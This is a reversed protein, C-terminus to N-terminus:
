INAIYLYGGLCGRGCLIGRELLMHAVATQVPYRDSNFRKCLEQVNTTRNSSFYSILEEDTYQSFESRIKVLIGQTYVPKLREIVKPKTFTFTRSSNQKVVNVAKKYIDPNKIDYEKMIASLLDLSELCVAWSKGTNNDVVAILVYCPATSINEMAMELNTMDKQTNGIIPLYEEIIEVTEAIQTTETQSSPMKECGALVIVVFIIVLLRKM